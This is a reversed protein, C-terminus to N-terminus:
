QFALPRFNDVQWVLAIPMGIMSSRQGHQPGARSLVFQSGDLKPTIFHPGWDGFVIVDFINGGQHLLLQMGQAGM